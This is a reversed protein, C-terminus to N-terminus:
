ESLSEFEIQPEHQVEQSLPSEKKLDHTNPNAKIIKLVVWKGHTRNIDQLLHRVAQIACLQQKRDKLKFVQKDLVKFCEDYFEKLLDELDQSEYSM